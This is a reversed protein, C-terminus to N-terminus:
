PLCHERLFLQVDWETPWSPTTTSSSSSSTCRSLIRQILEMETLPVTTSDRSANLAEHLQNSLFERRWEDQIKRRKALVLLKRIGPSLQPISSISLPIRRHEQSHQLRMMKVQRKWTASHEPANQVISGIDHGFLNFGVIVRRCEPPDIERVEASSHPLHGAMVVLRNFRYSINHLLSSDDSTEPLNEKCAKYGHREYHQFSEYVHLDGGYMREVPSCHLTGALHPLVVVNHRYRVQEAYDVHYTVSSKATSSLAWVGVGHLSRTLASLIMREDDQDFEHPEAENLERILLERLLGGRKRLAHRLYGCCAQAALTEISLDGGCGGKSDSRDDSSWLKSLIDNVPVYSGWSSENHNITFRYIEHVLSAPLADDVVQVTATVLSSHWTNPRWVLLTRATSDSRAYSMGSTRNCSIAEDSGEENENDDPYRARREKPGSSTDGATRFTEPIHGDDWDHVLCVKPDFSSWDVNLAM